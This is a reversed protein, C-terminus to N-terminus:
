KILMPVNISENTTLIIENTECLNIENMLYEQGNSDTFKLIFTCEETGSQFNFTFVDGNNISNSVPLRSWDTTGTNSVFINTVTTGSKNIVTYDDAFSSNSFIILSLLVAFIAIILKM